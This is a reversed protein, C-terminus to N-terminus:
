SPQSQFPTLAEVSLYAPGAASCAAFPFPVLKATTRNPPYVRLGAATVQHCTATPFNGADVIRLIATATGGKALKVTGRRSPNRSAARGVQQGTLNVGSVGPYGGLTCAHGSLNTFQLAYFSSGAAGNGETDLWIVLGATACGPTAASGTATTASVGTAAAAPGAALMVGSALAAAGAVAARAMRRRLFSTPLRM